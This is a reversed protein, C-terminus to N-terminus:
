LGRKCDLFDDTPDPGALPYPAPPVDGGVFLHTLSYVPDSIDVVGDDNADAADSCRLEREDLFLHTIVLISDTIDVIRNMDADSRLFHPESESSLYQFPKAKELRFTGEPTILRVDVMGPEDAPPVTGVITKSDRVTVGFDRVTVGLAPTTGFLVSVGGPPECIPFDAGLLAFLHGGDTFGWQPSVSTLHPIVTYNFRESFTREYFANKIRVDVCGAGDAAGPAVGTVVEGEAVALSEVARNGFWVQTDPTFYRGSIRVEFGGDADGRPPSVEEIVPFGIYTFTGPLTARSESTVLAITRKGPSDAPPIEGLITNADIVRVSRAEREGFLVRIVEDPNLPFGAGTLTFSSGGPAADFAPELRHLM